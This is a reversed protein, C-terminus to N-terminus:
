RYSSELMAVITDIEDKIEDAVDGRTTLLKLRQLARVQNTQVSEVGLQRAAGVTRSASDEVPRYQRVPTPQPSVPTPEEEQKRAREKLDDCARKSLGNDDCLKQWEEERYEGVPM